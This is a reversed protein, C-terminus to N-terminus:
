GPSEYPDFEDSGYEKCAWCKVGGSTVKQLGLKEQARYIQSPSFGAEEAATLIDRIFRIGGGIYSELWENVQSQKTSAQSQGTSGEWPNGDINLIPQLELGVRRFFFSDGKQTLLSGKGDMIGVVGRYNDQDPHYRMILQGRHRNRFAQSGM